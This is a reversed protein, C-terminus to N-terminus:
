PISTRAPRRWVFSVDAAGIRRALRNEPEQGANCGALVGLALLIVIRLPSLLSMSRM